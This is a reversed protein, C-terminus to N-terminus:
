DRWASLPINPRRPSRSGEPESPGDFEGAPRSVFDPRKPRGGLGARPDRAGLGTPDAVPNRKDPVWETPKKGEGEEAINVVSPREPTRNLRIAAERRKQERRILEGAETPPLFSITPELQNTGSKEKDLRKKAAEKEEKAKRLKERAKELESNRTDLDSKKEKEDAEWDQVTESSEVIDSDNFYDDALQEAAGTIQESSHELADEAVSVAKEASEVEARAKSEASEARDLDDRLTVERPSLYRVRRFEPYHKELSEDDIIGMSVAGLGYARERNPSRGLLENEWDWSGAQPVGGRATVAFVGSPDGPRSPLGGVSDLFRNAWFGGRLDKVTIGRQQALMENLDRVFASRREAQLRFLEQRRPDKIGSVPKPAAARTASPPTAALDTSLRSKAALTSALRVAGVRPPPSSVEAQRRIAQQLLWKRLMAPTPESDLWVGTRASEIAAKEKWSLQAYAKTRKLDSLTVEKM